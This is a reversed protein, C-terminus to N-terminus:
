FIYEYIYKSVNMTTYKRTLINRCILTVKDAYEYGYMFIDM